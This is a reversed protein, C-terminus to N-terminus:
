SGRRDGVLCFGDGYLKPMSFYGGEPVTKAGYRLVKGGELLPRIRPHQKWKVFLGHPDLKADTHDLGVM